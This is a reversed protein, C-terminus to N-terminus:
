LDPQTCMCSIDGIGAVKSNLVAVDWATIYGDTRVDGAWKQEVELEGIGAVYSNLVAVDWATVFGDKRVDGCMWINTLCNNTEDLEVLTENNDACVTINDSPPTYTWVYGNFCGTYREGPALDVPVHDHAVEVGDVYLTTNHCAPATGNGINTVNYCVTCNDPWCLWKETIILDPNPVINERVTFTGDAVTRPIENFPPVCDYLEKVDLDLLCTDGPNGVAKLTVYAFVFDGTMGSTTDWNMKTVGATNNINHTLPVLAGDSVSDVIVVDKEYNLWINAGCMNEVDTINIPVTVTAGQPASADEISVTTSAASRALSVASCPVPEMMHDDAPSEWLPYQDVLWFKIATSDKLTVEGDDKTDACELQDPTLTAMDVLYFKILTSDKLSVCVNLDTVDGEMLPPMVEFTGNVVTRPIEVLDCDYLEKVDLDLLCTDGPNGVAKLTVYAFVFDGTMGSTTDWNIKTVGATNDISHTLPVLNGDSVSDVIVLNKNYSLWINAGCMNEVDTINIPVTVTAGQPASANEISVVTESPPKVDITGTVDRTSPTGCTNSVRVSYPFDGSTESPPSATITFIESSGSAIDGLNTPSLSLWTPGSIKSVTV